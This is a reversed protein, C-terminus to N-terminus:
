QKATVALVRHVSVFTKKEWLHGLIILHSLNFQMQRKDLM